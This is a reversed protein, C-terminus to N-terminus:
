RDSDRPSFLLWEQPLRIETLAKRAEESTLFTLDLTTARVPAADAAVASVDHTAAFRERLFKGVGPAAAEHVEILLTASDLQPILPAFLEREYGECDSILFSHPRLTAALRAPSCFGSVRVSKEVRNAKAVELTARRAWWDTDFAIVETGPHARAFGVAYYGFKSGVDVIQSFRRELLAALWPHLEAEYTGLLFPGLHEQMTMPSLALGRFPGAQVVLGFVDTLKHNLTVLGWEDVLRQSHARSRASMVAIATEPAVALFARKLRHKIGSQTAM